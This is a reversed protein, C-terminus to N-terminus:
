VAKTYVFTESVTAGARRLAEGSWGTQPIRYTVRNADREVALHDLGAILRPFDNPSSAVWVVDIEGEDPYEVVAWGAPNNFLRQERASRDLDEVTSRKWTWSSAKLGRGAECLEGTSWYMWAPDVDSRGALSLREMRVPQNAARGELVGFVWVSTKRYGLKEVQAQAVTNTDETALRVVRGGQGRVWAVSTKNLMSGLGKRQAAPHVRAASLWGEDPSLMRVVCIALPTDDSDVAVLVHLDPDEIWGPLSGAVYDGWDFTDQTWGAIGPADDPRAQRLAYTM